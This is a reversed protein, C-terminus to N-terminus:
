DRSGRLREFIGGRPKEPKPEDNRPSAAGDAREEVIIQLNRSDSTVTQPRSFGPREITISLVGDIGADTLVGTADEFWIRQGVFDKARIAIARKELLNRVDTRYRWLQAKIAQRREPDVAAMGEIVVLGSDCKLRLGVEECGQMLKEVEEDRIM